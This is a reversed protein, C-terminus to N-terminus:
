KAPTKNANYPTAGINLTSNRTKTITRVINKKLNATVELTILDTSGGGNTSFQSGGDKCDIGNALSKALLSEVCLRDLATTKDANLRARM